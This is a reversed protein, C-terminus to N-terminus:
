VIRSSQATTKLAAALVGLAAGLEHRSAAAGLAVRVANPPKGTVDFADSGVIALGQLRVHAVFEDPTWRGPLPLWLHHGHPRAAYPWDTLISAALKQRAEAEARIAGVIADASGDRIWRAVLAVMLPTSMQVMARLAESATSVGASNPALLFSVRLGPAMCKSVSVACWTLEPIVAAFPVADTELPGYTDDEILTLGTERLVEAVAKRRKVPMTVTTPNNLTPVLYLAKPRHKRRAERLADPLIGSADTAVGILTVKAHAAALKMGPYTLPETLIVDGPKTMTALLLSLACQTGPCVLLRSEDADPIRPRLWDAAASREALTGGPERYNLYPSLGTDRELSAMGRAIRGELDAELPQPPLNMSLDFTAWATEPGRAQALSEAVFTGQGVRAEILGRARAHRYAHTVTSLDVGLASALARQTPLQQGRRLRGKAIDAALADAIRQYLPGSRETLTPTWDM